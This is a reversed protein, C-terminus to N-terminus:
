SASTSSLRQVFKCLVSQTTKRMEVGRCSVQKPAM